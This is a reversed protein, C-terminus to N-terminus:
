NNIPLKTSARVMYCAIRPLDCTAFIKTDNHMALVSAESHHLSTRNSPKFNPASVLLTASRVKIGNVMILINSKKFM